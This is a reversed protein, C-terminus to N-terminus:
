PTVPRYIIQGTDDKQFRYVTFQPVKLDGKADYSLPGAITDFVHGSRLIHAIQHTNLSGAREAASKFLQVAAYAYLVNAEPDIGAERLKKIVGAAEPNTNPDHVFTILTGEIAPGTAAPFDKSILTDGGMLLTALGQDRMQRIILAAEGQYGGYFLIDIRARKLRSVLASYDKEGPNITELLAPKIGQNKLAHSVVDTLGKGYPSRDHVIAINKDKFHTGLYQGVVHGQDEDRGTLRLVNWLGRETFHPTTAFSIQLIGSEAYVDSAPISVGSSYTIVFRAGDMSMKNAVAVGQKPDSADDATIIRIPQGLIGGSQNILAAAQEAGEKVQLGYTANQGTFPMAVGISVHAAAQAMEPSYFVLGMLIFFLSKRSM